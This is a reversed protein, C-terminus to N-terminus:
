IMLNLELTLADISKEQLTLRDQMKALGGTENEIIDFIDHTISDGFSDHINDSFESKFNSIMSVSEEFTENMLEVELFLNRAFM